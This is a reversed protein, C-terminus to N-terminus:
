FSCNHFELTVNCSQKTTTQTLAFLNIIVVNLSIIICIAEQLRKQSTM